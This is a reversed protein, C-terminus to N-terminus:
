FSFKASLAVNSGKFDGGSSTDSLKGYDEYELRLGFTPSIAYGVGIGFLNSTKHVKGAFNTTNRTVGLKGFASWGQQGLPVTATGAFSYATVGANNLKGLDTYGGEIGWTPSFQYGLFAKWSNESSDTDSKGLGGGVYMEAYAPAAVLAAAIAATMLLRKM